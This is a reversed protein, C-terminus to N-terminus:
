AGQSPNGPSVGSLQERMADIPASWDGSRLQRFLRATPYWPTDVRDLGWRWEPVKKLVIWVPAGIAGALHATSTDSSIVLDCCHMLAAADQFDWAADVEAQFGVFRDRFSCHRLQESGYGKQLSLFLVDNLDALPAFSELPLSRGRSVNKEHQPNGQWNLGIILRASRQKRELSLRSNWGFVRDPDLPLYPCSSSFDKEHASLLGPLSLLPVWQAGPTLQDADIDIPVVGDVLGSEIILDVLNEPCAFLVRNAYAHLLPAFRIFQLTDGLGQEHLIVLEDVVGSDVGQWRELGPIVRIIPNADNNAFRWEYERWGQEYDSLQLLVMAYGLRADAHDAQLRLARSYYHRAREIEGLDHYIVGVNSLVDASDSNLSFATKAYELALVLDGQARLTIALNSYAQFYTPDVEIARRFAQAASDIQDSARLANGLGTLAPVFDPRLNLAQQHAKIAGDWDQLAHLANGLNFHAEPLNEDLSVSRRSSSAAEQYRGLALHVMAMNAHAGASDPQLALANECAKVAAQLDGQDHLLVSLALWGGFHAPELSLSREIFQRADGINRRHIEITGLLYWFGANRDELEIAARLYKASSDLNGHLLELQGLNALVLPHNLGRDLLSRYAKVPENLSGSAHAQLVRVLEAELQGM